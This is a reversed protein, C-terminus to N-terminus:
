IARATAPRSLNQLGDYAAYKFADSFTPVNFTTDIFYDLTGGLKLVGQGLHVLEGANEGLVHVGLLRRDARAFVLKVLGETAGAIIARPNGAFRGRGVQYDLGAAAAAEETLGIMAVEPVCYVGIPPTPDVASKFEIGMAHCAAVRGQEMSVSALGPPGLVDGAAYVGEATTRFTQDVVIRNRGDIEVGAADLGLGEVNGSRGAAFLVKDPRLEESDLRVRLGASDRSVAAAPGGLALRMGVDRFTAALEGSIEEDAFPLLRDTMDALIVHVGLATLISAYECGIPGGGIIVISTFPRDVALLTVSDHVDPDDFPVEPPHFPRSGTAILVADGQLRRVSGDPGTVRTARGPELVARGTVYEIGHRELNARVAATMTQYVSETRLRLRALTAEPDLTLHVGYIERRRFGSVYLATERLTKTPIGANGVSAGGPDAAREVVAVRRGHYAAQAAAKEGAPGAGIVVLDFRDEGSM